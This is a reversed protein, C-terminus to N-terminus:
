EAAEPQLEVGRQRLISRRIAREENQWFRETVAEVAGVLEEADFELRRLDALTADHWVVCLESGGFFYGSDQAVHAVLAVPTETGTEDNWRRYAAVVLKAM